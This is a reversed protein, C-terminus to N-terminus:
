NKHYTFSEYIIVLKAVYFEFIFYLLISVISSALPNMDEECAYFCDNMSITFFLFDKLYKNVTTNNANCVFYCYKTYTSHM